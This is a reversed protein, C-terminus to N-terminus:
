GIWAGSSSFRHKTGDITVTGTAMAGTSRFFYWKGDIRKWCSYAMEGGEELWYWKGGNSFWGDHYVAGDPGAYYWDGNTYFWGTRMSGDSGLYYLTGDDDLWDTEIFGILNFYYWYGDIKAWTDSLYGGVGYDYYCYEGGYSEWEGKSAANATIPMCVLMIMALTVMMIRTLKKKGMEKVGEM